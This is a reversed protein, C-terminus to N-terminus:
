PDSDPKGLDGAIVVKIIIVGGWSYYDTIAISMAPVLLASAVWEPSPRLKGCVAEFWLPEGDVNVSVRSLGEQVMSEVFVPGTM